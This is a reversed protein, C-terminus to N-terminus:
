RDRHVLHGVWATHGLELHVCWLLVVINLWSLQYFRVPRKKSAVLINPLHLRRIQRKKTLANTTQIHAAAAPVPKDHVDGTNASNFDGFEVKWIVSSSLVHIAEYKGIPAKNPAKGDPKKASLIPRRLVAIEIQAGYM